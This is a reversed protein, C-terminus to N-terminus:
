STEVLFADLQGSDRWNQNQWHSHRKIAKVVFNQTLKKQGQLRM